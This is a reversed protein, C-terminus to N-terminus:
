MTTIDKQKAQEKDNEDKYWRRISEFYTTAMWDIVALVPQKTAENRYLDVTWLGDAHFNTGCMLHQLSKALMNGQDWWKRNGPLAEEAM